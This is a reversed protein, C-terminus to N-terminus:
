ADGDFDYCAIMTSDAAACRRPADITPGDAQGEGVMSDAPAVPSSLGFIQQCGALLGLLVVRRMRRDYGILRRPPRSAAVDIRARRCRERDSWTAVPDQALAFDERRRAVRTIRM